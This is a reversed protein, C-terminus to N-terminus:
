LRVEASPAVLDQEFEYLLASGVPVNQFEGKKVRCWHDSRYEVEWGRTLLWNVAIERQPVGVQRKIDYHLTQFTEMEQSKKPRQRTVIAM